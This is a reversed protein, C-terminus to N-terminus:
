LSVAEPTSHASWFSQCHPCCSQCHPCCDGEFLSLLCSGQCCFEQWPWDHYRNMLKEYEWMEMIKCLYINIQCCPRIIWWKWIIKLNQSALPTQFHRSAPPLTDALESHSILDIDRELDLYWNLTWLLFNSRASSMYTDIKRGIRGDQWGSEQNRWTPLASM